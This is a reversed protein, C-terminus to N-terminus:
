TRPLVTTGRWQSTPGYLVEFTERRLFAFQATKGPEGEIPSPVHTVPGLECGMRQLRSVAKDNRLDPELVIREYSPDLMLYGAFFVLVHGSFNPRREGPGILAHMGIDGSQRDYCEGIVDYAPDYSQVLAVQEGDLSVLYAAHTAQEDLWTYVEGVEERTYDGMGWFRAREQTVWTHILDLDAVPDVEALSLRGLGTMEEVFLEPRTM